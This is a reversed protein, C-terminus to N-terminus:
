GTSFWTHRRRHPWRRCKWGLGRLVSRRWATERGNITRSGDRRGLERRLQVPGPYVGQWVLALVAAKFRAEPKTMQPM